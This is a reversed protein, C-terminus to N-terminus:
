GPHCISMDCPYIFSGASLLQCRDETTPYVSSLHASMCLWQVGTIRGVNISDEKLPPDGFAVWLLLPTGVGACKCVRVCEQYIHFLCLYICLCCPFFLGGGGVGSETETEGEWSSIHPCWERTARFHWSLPPSPPAPLTNAYRCVPILDLLSPSHFFVCVCEYLCFVLGHHACKISTQCLHIHKQM